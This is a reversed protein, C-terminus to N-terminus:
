NHATRHRSNCLALFFLCSRFNQLSIRFLVSTYRDLTPAIKDFTEQTDCFALCLRSSNRGLVPGQPEPKHNGLAAPTHHLAPHLPSKASSFTFLSFHPTGAALFPTKNSSLSASTAHFLSLPRTFYSDFHPPSLPSPSIFYIFFFVPSRSSSTEQPLFCSPQDSAREGWLVSVLPPTLLPVDCCDTM